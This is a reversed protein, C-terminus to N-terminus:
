WAARRRRGTTARPRRRRSSRRARRGRAERHPVRAVPQADIQQGRGHEHDAHDAGRRSRSSTCSVLIGLTRHPYSRHRAPALEEAELADSDGEAGDLHEAPDVELHAVSLEDRQDAGRAAALRRQQVQARPPQRRAAPRTWRGARRRITNWCSPSNGHSVTSSFMRSPNLWTGSRRSCRRRASASSSSM